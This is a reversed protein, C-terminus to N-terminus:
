ERRVCRGRLSLLRDVLDDILEVAARGQHSRIIFALLQCLQVQDGALARLSRGGVAGRQRIESAARGKQEIVRPLAPVLKCERQLQLSGVTLEPRTRQGGRFLTQRRKCRASDVVNFSRGDGAAAHIQVRHEPRAVACDLHAQFVEPMHVDVPYSMGGLRFRAALVLLDPRVQSAPLNFIEDVQREHFIL